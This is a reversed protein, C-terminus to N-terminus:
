SIDNFVNSMDEHFFSGTRFFFHPVYKAGWELPTLRSKVTANAKSRIVDALQKALNVQEVM